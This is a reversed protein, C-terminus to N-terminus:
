HLGILVVTYIQHLVGTAYRFFFPLHVLRGRASWSANMPPQDLLAKSQSIFSFNLM